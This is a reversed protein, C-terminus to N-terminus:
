GLHEKLEEEFRELNDEDPNLVFWDNGVEMLTDVIVPEEGLGDPFAEYYIRVLFEREGGNTIAVTTEFFPLFSCDKMVNPTGEVKGAGHCERCPRDEVIQFISTHPHKLGDGRCATCIKM